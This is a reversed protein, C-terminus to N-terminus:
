VFSQVLFWGNEVQGSAVTVNHIGPELGSKTVPAIDCTFGIHDGAGLNDVSRILNGDLYIDGVGGRITRLLNVTFATGTMSVASLRFRGTPSIYKGTFTLTVNDGYSWLDVYSGCATPEWFGHTGPSFGSVYYAFSPVM